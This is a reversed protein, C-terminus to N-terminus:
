AVEINPPRFLTQGGAYSAGSVIPPQKTNQKLLEAQMSQAQAITAADILAAAVFAAKEIEWKAVVAAHADALAKQGEESAAAVTAATQRAAGSAQEAADVVQKALDEGDAAMVSTLINFLQGFSLSPNLCKALLIFVLIVISM